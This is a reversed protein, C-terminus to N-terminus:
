LKEHLADIEDSKELAAKGSLYSSVHGLNAFSKLNTKTPDDISSSDVLADWKTKDLNGQGDIIAAIIFGNKAKLLGTANKGKEIVEFYNKEGLISKFKNEVEQAKKKSANANELAMATTEADASQVAM